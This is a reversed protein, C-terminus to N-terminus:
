KIVQPEILSKKALQLRAKKAPDSQSDFAKQLLLQVLDKDGEIRLLVELSLERVKVDDSDALIRSVTPISPNGIKILAEMAPRGSIVPYGWIPIDSPDFELTIEAALAAVAEGSRLEGLYYAAACKNFNSSRRDKLVSSLDATLRKQEGAFNARTTEFLRLNNTSLVSALVDEPKVNYPKKGDDAWGKSGFCFIMGLALIATAASIYQHSRAIQTETVQQKMLITPAISRGAHSEDRHGQTSHMQPFITPEVALTQLRSRRHRILKGGPKFIGFTILIVAYKVM